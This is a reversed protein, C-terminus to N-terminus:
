AFRRAARRWKKAVRDWQCRCAKYAGDTGERIRRAQRKFKRIDRCGQQILERAADIASTTKKSDQM